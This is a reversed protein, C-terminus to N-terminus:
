LNHELMVSFGSSVASFGESKIKHSVWQETAAAAAAAAAATLLEEWVQVAHPGIGQIHATHWETLIQKPSLFAQTHTHTRAYAHPCTERHTTTHTQKLLGPPSYFTTHTGTGTGTNHSPSFGVVSTCLLPSARKGQLGDVLALRKVCVCVCVCPSIRWLFLPWRPATPPFMHDTDQFSADQETSGGDGGRYQKERGRGRERERKAPQFCLLPLTMSGM